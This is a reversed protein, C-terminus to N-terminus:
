SRLPPLTAAPWTEAWILLADIDLGHPRQHRFPELGLAGRTILRLGSEPKGRAHHTLGVALQAMAKWLARDDPKTSSKWADEFVEHAHFPKGDSLLAQAEAVTQTASRVIGEAAREVGAAGHPLPRGLEDRPRSSRARGAGDRDRPPTV